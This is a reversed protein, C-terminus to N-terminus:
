YSRGRGENLVARWRTLVPPAIGGATHMGGAEVTMLDGGASSFGRITAKSYRTLWGVGVNSTFYYAFDVGVNFGIESASQVGAVADAYTADDYPYSHAFRVDNVLGQKLSFFTPGGFTTVTVSPGASMVALVQLHVATEERTLPVTGSIERNRGFHLPHPM